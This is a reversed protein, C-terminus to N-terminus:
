DPNEQGTRTWPGIGSVRDVDIRVVYGPPPGDPLPFDFDPGIYIKALRSVQEPAGGETVEAHGHIVLNPHAPQRGPQAHPLTCPV